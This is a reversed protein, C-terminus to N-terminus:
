VRLGLGQFRLGKVRLRLGLGRDGFLGFYSRDLDGTPGQPETEPM